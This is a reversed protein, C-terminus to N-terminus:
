QERQRRSSTLFSILVQRQWLLICQYLKLEESNHGEPHDARCLNPNIFQPSVCGAVEPGTCQLTCGSQPPCYTFSVYICGDGFGIKLSGTIQGGQRVQYREVM